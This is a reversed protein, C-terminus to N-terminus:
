FAWLQTSVLAGKFQEMRMRTFLELLHGRRTEDRGAYEVWAGPLVDLQAAVLKLLPDFPKEQEGLVRGPFRLYCMQVAVGLRNHDRRHQRIFTLDEKTLTCLRILEGQDEPFALLQIRESSTLLERRPM